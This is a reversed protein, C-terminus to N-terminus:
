GRGVLQSVRQDPLPKSYLFGQALKCGHESLFAVQEETEVGEALPPISLSEALGIVARCLAASHPDAPLRAVLSHDIKLFRVGQYGLQRLSSHGSGFDDIGLGIGGQSLVELVRETQDPALNYVSEPVEIVLQDAPIGEEEVIALVREAFGASILQHPSVNVSCYLQPPLNAARRCAARIAWEGLPVILGYDQAVELFDGPSLLGREPHEWRLLGEVGVVKRNEITVIPQYHLRMQGGDLATRLESELTLQARIKQQLEPTYLEVRNRGSQKAHFLAREANELLDSWDEGHTPNYSIGVSASVRVSQGSLEFPVSLSELTQRALERAQDEVSGGAWAVMLVFFEDEGRRCVVEAQCDRLRDAVQCLLEDGTKQGLTDNVVRFRDLDVVLLAVVQGQELKSAVVRPLVNANALGTLPDEFALRETDRDPAPAPGSGTALLRDREATLEALEQELTNAKWRAAQLVTSARKAEEQEQSLQERLSAVEEESDRLKEELEQLKEVAPGAKEYIRRFRENAEDIRSQARTAREEAQRASAEAELQSSEAVEARADAAAARAEAEEARRELEEVGSMEYIRRFRINAELTREEARAAAREAEEVRAQAESLRRDAEAAAEESRRAREEAEDYKEVAPGSKVYIRRFREDAELARAEAQLAREEFTQLTGVDALPLSTLSRLWYLTVDPLEQRRIEYEVLEVELRQDQGHRSLLEAWEDSGALKKAAANVFSVDGTGDLGVIADPHNQLTALFDM